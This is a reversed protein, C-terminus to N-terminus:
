SEVIQKLIAVADGTNVVGDKNIDAALKNNGELVIMDAVAKLVQVADATNIVGDGNADGLMVEPEAFKLTWVKVADINIRFMDTSNYHRFAIRITKGAFASLDFTKVEWEPTSEGEFLVTQEEGCIVYVAYHEEAYAPDQGQVAYSFSTNNDATFEPTILWNDPNLAQNTRNDYSASTIVYEGDYADTAGSDCYWENGDGDKDNIVWGELGKSEFGNYLIVTDGAAVKIEDINLVFMDTVDFHRLAIKIEKGAYDSLDFEKIEWEATSDGEFLKVEEGDVIVYVAYHEAAYDSDQGMVAFTLKADKVATFSPSIFWNDPNLASSTPNDYSASLLVNEGEYASYGGTNASGVFWNFGDGDKDEATWGDETFDYEDVEFSEDIFFVAESNCVVKCTATFEGDVTTATIVAEGIGTAKVTGDKAVTAVKEDSTTWDIKTISADEPTVTATLKYEENWELELETKDLSVGTVPTPVVPNGEEYEFYLGSFERKAEENFSLLSLEATETNVIAVWDTFDEYGDTHGLGLWYLTETNHDFAMTQIYAPYMGTEGIEKIESKALDTIEYLVGSNVEIAYMTGDIGIALTQFMIGLDYSEVVEGTYMNIESISPMEEGVFLTVAYMKHAAYDYAMDIAFYDIEYQDVVEYTDADYVIYSGEATVAYIKGDYYEAAGINEDADALRELNGAILEYDYIGPEYEEENIDVIMFANANVEDVVYVTALDSIKEDVTVKLTAKGLKLGKVIAGDGVGIEVVDNGEIIEYDVQNYGAYNPLVNIEIKKTGGVTVYIDSVSVSEATFTNEGAYINKLWACDEGESRDQDKVYGWALKYEGSTEVIYHYTTWDVKGSYGIIAKGNVNFVLGDYGEESDVKCDFTVIDGKTLTVKTEVVALSSDEHNQSVACDLSDAVAWKDGTFDLSMGEANLVDNLTPEEALATPFIAMVMLVTLALAIIRKM